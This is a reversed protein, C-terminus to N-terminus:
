KARRFNQEDQGRTEWLHLELTEKGQVGLQSPKGGIVRGKRKGKGGKGDSEERGRWQATKQSLRRSRVFFRLPRAAVPM